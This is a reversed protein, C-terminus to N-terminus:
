VSYAASLVARTLARADLEFTVKVLAFAPVNAIM